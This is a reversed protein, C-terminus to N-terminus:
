SSQFGLLVFIGMVIPLSVSASLGMDSTGCVPCYWCLFSQSCDGRWFVTTASQEPQIRTDTACASIPGCDSFNACKLLSM